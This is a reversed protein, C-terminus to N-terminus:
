KLSIGTPDRGVVGALVDSDDEDSDKILDGPVLLM